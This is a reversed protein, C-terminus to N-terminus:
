WLGVIAPYKDGWETEFEELAARAAEPTAARYIPKMGRTVARRDSWSIFRVTNRILHVVCTQVTAQPRVAEIADGFGSLGDCCVALVDAVGRNKLETLM